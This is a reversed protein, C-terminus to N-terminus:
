NLLQHHKGDWEELGYLISPGWEESPKNSPISYSGPTFLCLRKSTLNDSNPDETPLTAGEPTLTLLMRKTSSKSLSKETSSVAERMKDLIQPMRENATTSTVSFPIAAPVAESDKNENTNSSHEDKAKGKVKGDKAEQKIAYKRREADMRENDDVRYKANYAKRTSRLGPLWEERAINETLEQLAFEIGILWEEVSDVDEEELACKIFQKQHARSEVTLRILQGQRRSKPSSDYNLSPLNPLAKHVNNM